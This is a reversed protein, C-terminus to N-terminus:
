GASCTLNAPLDTAAASPDSASSAKAQDTVAVSLSGDSPQVLGEDWTGFRPDLTVGVEEAYEVRLRQGETLAAQEDPETTGEEALSERGLEALGLQSTAFGEVAEDFTGRLREPLSQSSAAAQQRAAAVQERDVSDPDILAGALQNDLLIQLAQRRVQQTPVAAGEEADANLACLAEALEDVKEDTIRDSGVEAAVGPANQACGALLLAALAATSAVTARGGRTGTVRRM